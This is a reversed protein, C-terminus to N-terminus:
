RVSFTDFDYVEIIVEKIFPQYDAASFDPVPISFIRLMLIAM